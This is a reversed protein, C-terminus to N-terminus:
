IHITEEVLQSKFTDDKYDFNKQTIHFIEPQDIEIDNATLSKHVLDLSLLYCSRAKSLNARVYGIRTPTLFKIMLCYVASVKNKKM